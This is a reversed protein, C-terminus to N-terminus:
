YSIQEKRNVFAGYWKGSSKVIREQTEFDVHVLGFRPRYGEAWEFNDTLTWVFYGSLPVGDQKARLCQAINDQLFAKRQPDDVKGHEVRDPFAAGNETIIVKRLRYNQHFQRLIQYIAEPYVEWKMETTPVGRKEASVPRAFIYPTFWSHRIVERTYNQLGIFDFDFALAAEDDALMYKDMKRLIPLSEEPYGMGLAPEIFLRNLLADARETAKLHRKKERYPTVYACSFTTGIEADSRMDRLIRGGAAQCLATHHIAPLFNRIGRMGPAHLGLFYGAGTFVLPENLVMWHKVTDGLERACLAVYDEFWHVIDRKTWGGKESLALPLDWHYLTLWPTIGNELCTHILRKYFDLGKQNVAGKGEPLIRSWALSFRFDPIGMQRILSVDEPYRHYFDCAIRAHQNKYIKGPRTTFEDWISPGKGDKRHAGETQYAASAVGWSFDPGFTHAQM